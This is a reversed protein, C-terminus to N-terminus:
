NRERKVHRFDCSRGKKCSGARYFRCIATTSTGYDLMEIDPTMSRNKLRESLDFSNRSTEDNKNKNKKRIKDAEKEALEQFKLHPNPCNETRCDDSFYIAVKLFTFM